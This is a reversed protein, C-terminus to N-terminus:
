QAKKRRTLIKKAIKRDDLMITKDKLQQYGEHGKGAILVVDGQGALLVAREIAKTRDVEILLRGEKQLTAQIPQAIGDMIQQIIEGPEEQRPNDSTIISIDALEAAIAGMPGRKSSDRNGGCGFVLIVRKKTLEKLARLVQKLADPTHAYDVLVTFNQKLSVPEMRGAITKVSELGRKISALTWNLALGTAAAALANYVNHRGILKLNIRLQRSQWCLDFSCSKSSVKINKAMVECNAQIGYTIIRLGAAAKAMREGYRDDMNIIATKNKKNSKLEALLSFLRRKAAAYHDMTGHYDLHERTLNTYIACDFDCAEVRNEMLAHSSVEMIALRCGATVMEGLLRQVEWAMPTTNLSPVIRDGIEHHITGIIGMPHITRPGRAQKHSIAKVLQTISTKGNTGTVGLLTLQESPYNYFKPVVKRLTNGVDNVKIVAVQQYSHQNIPRSTLIAVAGKKIAEDMYRHGDFRDGQLCAFLDGPQVQRSDAVIRKVLVNKRGQLLAGEMAAAILSVPIEM